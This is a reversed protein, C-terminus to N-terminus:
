QSHERADTARSVCLAKLFGTRILHAMGEEYLLPRFFGPYHKCVLDDKLGPRTSVLYSDPLLGVGYASSCLAHLTQESVWADAFLKPNKLWREISEFDISERRVLFLGSNVYPQPVVGLESECEQPTLSYWYNEDRNYYNKRLQDAPVCLETPRRFFVIDSDVSIICDADSLLFYDLLKRTAVNRLRYSQCRELGRASLLESVRANSEQELVLHCDPFHQQLADLNAPRLGGDHIYLPYDVGAFHYFSKLAWVINVWDRWWTLVRVEVPGRRATRVPPTKLIQRQIRVRRWAPRLGERWTWRADLYLPQRGVWTRLASLAPM